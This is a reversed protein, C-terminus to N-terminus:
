ISSNKFASAVPTTIPVRIFYRWYGLEFSPPSIQSKSSHNLNKPNSGGILHRITSESLDLLGM